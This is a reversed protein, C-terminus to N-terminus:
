AGFWGEPFPILPWALGNDNAATRPRDFIGQPPDPEVPSKAKPPTRDRSRQSRIIIEYVM